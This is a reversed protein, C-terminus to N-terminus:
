LLDPSLSVFVGFYKQWQSPSLPVSFSAGEQVVSPGLGLAPGSQLIYAVSLGSRSSYPTHLPGYGTALTLFVSWLVAEEGGDRGPVQQGGVARYM